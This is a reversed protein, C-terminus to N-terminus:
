KSFDRLDNTVPLGVRTLQKCVESSISYNPTWSTFGENLYEKWDIEEEEIEERIAYDEPRELFKQTPTESLCLLLKVVNLRNTLESKPLHSTIFSDYCKQLAEAQPFFGHFNFKEAMGAISQDVEKKNLFYM